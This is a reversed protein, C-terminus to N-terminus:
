RQRSRRCPSGPVKRSTPSPQRDAKGAKRTTAVFRHAFETRLFRSRSSFTDRTQQSFRQADRQQIERTPRSLQPLRACKGSAPLRRSKRPARRSDKVLPLNNEALTCKSCLVRRCR